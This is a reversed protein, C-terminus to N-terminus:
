RAFNDCIFLISAYSFGMSYLTDNFSLLGGIYTLLTLVSVAYSAKIFYNYLYDWRTLSMSFLAVPFCSSLFNLSTSSLYPRTASFAFSSVIVLGCILIFFLVRKTLNKILCYFGLLFFLLLIIKPFSFLFPISRIAPIGNFLNTLFLSFFLAVISFSFTKQSNIKM